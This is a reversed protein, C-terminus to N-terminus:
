IYKKSLSLHLTSKVLMTFESPLLLRQKLVMLQQFLQMPVLGIERTVTEVLQSGLLHVAIIKGIHSRAPAATRLSKMPLIAGVQAVFNVILLIVLHKGKPGIAFATCM